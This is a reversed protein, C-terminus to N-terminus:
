TLKLKSRIIDNILRLLTLVDQPKLGLRTNFEWEDLEVYAEYLVNKLLVLDDRSLEYLNGEFKQELLKM